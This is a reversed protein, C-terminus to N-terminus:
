FCQELWDFFAEIQNRGGYIGPFQEAIEPIIRVNAIVSRWSVHGDSDPETRQLDQTFSFTRGTRACDAEFHLRYYFRGKRDRLREARDPTILQIRRAPHGVLVPADTEFVAGDDAAVYHVHSLGDGHSCRAKTLDTVFTSKKM